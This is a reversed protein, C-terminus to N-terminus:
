QRKTQLARARRAQKPDQKLPRYLEIRDGDELAHNRQVLQGFIGVATERPVQAFATQAFAASLADDVTAGAALELTIALLGEPQAYVVEVSLSRAM